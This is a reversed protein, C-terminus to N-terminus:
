YRWFVGIGGYRMLLEAAEGGLIELKIGNKIARLPILSKISNINFSKNRCVICEDNKDSQLSQCNKCEKITAKLQRSIVISDARGNNIAQLTTDLGISANNGQTSKEILLDALRKERSREYKWFEKLSLELIEKNPANISISAKGVLMESQDKNLLKIYKDQIDESGGIILESINYDHKLSDFFSTTEKMFRQINAKVRDNFAEVRDGGGIAGKSIGDKPSSPPMLRQKKWDATDLNLDHSKIREVRNLQVKYFMVKHSDLLLVGYPRYEELLWIIQGLNPVGYSVENEVGVQISLIETIADGIFVIVAKEKFLTGELLKKAKKELKEFHILDEKSIKDKLDKLAGKLWILSATRGGDSKSSDSNLYITLINKESSNLLEQLKSAELM